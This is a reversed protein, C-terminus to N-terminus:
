PYPNTNHLEKWFFANLVYLKPQRFDQTRWGTGCWLNSTDQRWVLPSTHKLQKNACEEKREKSSSLPALFCWNPYQSAGLLFVDLHLCCAKSTFHSWVHKWQVYCTFHRVGVFRRSVWIILDMLSTIVNFGFM